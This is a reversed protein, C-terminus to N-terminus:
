GIPGCRHDRLVNAYAPPRPNVSSYIFFALNPAGEPNMTGVAYFGAHRNIAEMLADAEIIVYYKNGAFTLFFLTM